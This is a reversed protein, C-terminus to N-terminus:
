QVDINENKEGRGDTTEERCSSKQSGERKSAAHCVQTSRGNVYFARRSDTGTAFDSVNKMANTCNFLKIKGKNKHLITWMQYVRNSSKWVLNLLPWSPRTPQCSRLAWHKPPHPSCNQKIYMYRVNTKTKINTKGNRKLAQRQAFIM